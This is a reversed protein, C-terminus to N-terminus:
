FARREEQEDEEQEEKLAMRLARCERSILRRTSEMSKKGALVWGIEDGRDRDWGEL